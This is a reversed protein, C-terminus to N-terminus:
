MFYENNVFLLVILLGTLFAILIKM